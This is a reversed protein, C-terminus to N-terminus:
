HHRIHQVYTQKSYNKYGKYFARIVSVCTRLRLPKIEDTDICHLLLRSTRYDQCKSYRGDSCVLDNLSLSLFVPRLLVPNYLLKFNCTTETVVMLIYILMRKVNNLDDVSASSTGSLLDLKLLVANRCPRIIVPQITQPAGAEKTEEM